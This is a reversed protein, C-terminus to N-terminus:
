RVLIVYFPQGGIRVEAVAVEKQLEVFMGYIVGAATKGERKRMWLEMEPLAAKFLACTYFKACVYAAVHASMKPALVAEWATQPIAIHYGVHLIDGERPPRNMEISSHTVSATDLDNIHARTELASARKKQIM